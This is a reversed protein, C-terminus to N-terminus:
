EENAPEFFYFGSKAHYNRRINIDIIENIIVDITALVINGENLLHGGYVKMTEDSFQAHVHIQYKGQNDKAIIGQAGLFEISGEIEVPESYKIKYFSNLDKLAYVFSVKKLSGICTSIYANEINHKKCIEQISLMMESDPLIRSFIRRGPKGVVERYEM